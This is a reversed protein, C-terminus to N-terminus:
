QGIAALIRIGTNTHCPCLTEFDNHFQVWSGLGEVRLGLGEVRYM